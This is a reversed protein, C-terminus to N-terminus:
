AGSASWQTTLGAFRLSIEPLSVAGKITDALFWLCPHWGFSDSWGMGDLLAAAFTAGKEHADVDTNCSIMKIIIKLKPSKETSFRAALDVVMFEPAIECASSVHLSFSFPSASTQLGCTVLHPSRSPLLTLLLPSICVVKIHFYPTETRAQPQKETEM